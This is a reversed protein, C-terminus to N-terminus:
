ASRGGPVGAPLIATSGAGNARAQELANAARHVVETAIDAADYEPVIVADAIGATVPTSFGTTSIRTKALLSRLNQVTREAAIRDTGPLVLAITTSAYEAASHYHRLHSVVTQGIERMTTEVGEEGLARLMERAAGFHLLVLSLPAKQEQARRTEGLIMDLLSARKLLGSREDVAAITKMLIRLRATNMTLVMHDGISRVLAQDTASWERTEGKHHLTLLGVTKDGDALPVALLSTTGLESLVSHISKLEPATQAEPCNAGGDEALVPQLARIIRMGAQPHMKTIGAACYELALSPPKDPEVLAAFCRSCKWHRGIDNVAVLLVDRANGQRSVKRTIESVAEVLDATEKGEKKPTFGTQGHLQRLRENKEEEGPFVADILQLREVAQDPMSHRVSIEAQSIVDDLLNHGAAAEETEVGEPALTSRPMQALRSNFLKPHIKGRLMELRAEHGAAYPDAAHCLDWTDAAHLFNGAAFHVEFLKVLADFYEQERSSVRLLEVLYQWFETGAAHAQATDRLSTLYADGRGAANEREQAKRALDLAQQPEGADLLAGLLAIVAPLQDAKREYSSWVLPAADRARGAAILLHAYADRFEPRSDSRSAVRELVGVAASPDGMLTRGYALAADENDADLDYAQEYWTSPDRGNREEMKGIQLLASIAAKTDQVAKALEVQRHLHEVTPELGAAGKWAQLAEKQKGAALFADAAARYAGVAERDRTQEMLRATQLHQEATPTGARKLKRYTAIALSSLKAELQRDLIGGMLRVAEEPRNMSLLLDAAGRAAADSRPDEAAAKLYEELAAERRGKQLLQSAKELYKSVDAM